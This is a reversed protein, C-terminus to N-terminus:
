RAGALARNYWQILLEPGSGEDTPLREVRQQRLFVPCKQCFSYRLSRRLANARAKRCPREAAKGYPGIKLYLGHGM